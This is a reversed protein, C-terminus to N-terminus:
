DKAGSRRREPMEDGRPQVQEGHAALEAHADEAAFPAVDHLREDDDAAEDPQHHRAEV